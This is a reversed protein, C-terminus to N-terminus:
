IKIVCAKPFHREGCIANQEITIESCIFVHKIKKCAQPIPVSYEKDCLDVFLVTLLVGLHLCCQLFQNVLPHQFAM